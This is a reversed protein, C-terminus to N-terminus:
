LINTIHSEKEKTGKDFNSIIDLSFIEGRLLKEISEKREIGRLQIDTMKLVEEPDIFDVAMIEKKDFAVEGGVIETAFCFHVVHTEKPRDINACNQIGLFGTLKVDYGTEEKAERM